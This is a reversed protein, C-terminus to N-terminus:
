FSDKANSLIRYDVSVCLIGGGWKGHGGLQHPLHQTPRRPVLDGLSGGGDEPLHEPRPIGDGGGKSLKASPQEAAGLVQPGTTAPVM